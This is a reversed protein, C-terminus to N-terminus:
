SLFAMCDAKSRVVRGSWTGLFIGATLLTTAVPREVFPESISWLKM